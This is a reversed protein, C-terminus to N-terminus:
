RHKLYSVSARATDAQPVEVLILIETRRSAAAHLAACAINLSPLPKLDVRKTCAFETNVARIM